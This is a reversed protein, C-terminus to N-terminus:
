ARLRDALGSNGIIKRASAQALIEESCVLIVKNKARTIGTYLVEKTLIPMNQEPLIFLVDNFESGQSKHVTMAFATEHEPLLSPIINRTTGDKGTFFVRREGTETERVLGIDGNFLNLQYDNKTIMIPRNVYMDKDRKLLGARELLMEIKINLGKVGYETERVPSLVIFSNMLNIAENNDDCLIFQGFGKEFLPLLDDFTKYSILEIGSEPSNSEFIKKIEGIGASHNVATSLAGIGKRKEFRWSKELVTVNNELVGHNIASECIDFFVAGAEVSSLQDKDGLIICSTASDLALLLKSMMASDIMSAEDIIVLDYPLPNEKNHRPHVSSYSIGLLRHLTMNTINEMSVLTEMVEQKLKASGTSLIKKIELRASAVAEMMRAAAKGTPATLVIRLKPNQLLKLFIIKAATTTKGTGPGGSIISLSRSFAGFAAQKQLLAEESPFLIDLYHLLEASLKDSDIVARQRLENAMIREYNWYRELYLRGNEIVMPFGAEMNSVTGSALLAKEWVAQKKMALPVGTDPLPINQRAFIAEANENLELCIHGASLMSSLLAASLAATEAENEAHKSIFEAFGAALRDTAKLKDIWSVPEMDGQKRRNKVALFNM